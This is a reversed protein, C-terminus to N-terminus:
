EGILKLLDIEKVRWDPEKGDIVQMPNMVYHIEHLSAIIRKREQEVKLFAYEEMFQYMALNTGISHGMKNSVWEGATLNDAGETSGETKNETSVPTLPQELKDPNEIPQNERVPPNHTRPKYIPETKCDTKGSLCVHEANLPFMVGCKPCNTKDPSSM